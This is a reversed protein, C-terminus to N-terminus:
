PMALVIKGFQQGSEMCETAARVQGLPWVSDAVAGGPLARLLRM